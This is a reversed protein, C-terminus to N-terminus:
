DNNIFRPFFMDEAVSLKYGAVKATDLISRIVEAACAVFSIDRDPLRRPDRSRQM